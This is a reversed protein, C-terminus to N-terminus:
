IKGHWSMGNCAVCLLAICYLAMGTPGDACRNKPGLPLPEPYLDRLCSSLVPLFSPPEGGGSKHNLTGVQPPPPCIIRNANYRMSAHFSM